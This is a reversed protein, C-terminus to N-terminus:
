VSGYRPGPRNLRGELFPIAFVPWAGALLPLLRYLLPTPVYRLGGWHAFGAAFWSEMWGLLILSTLGAAALFLPTNQKLKRKKASRVGITLALLFVIMVPDLPLLRLLMMASLGHKLIISGTLAMRVAWSNQVVFYFLFLTMWLARGSLSALVFGCGWFWLVMAGMSTAAYAVQQALSVGGPEYPVGYTVYTRIQRFLGSDIRHVSGSLYFGAVGAVGFLAVWPAWSSWQALHRRIVLGLINAAAVPASLQLEELDGCVCEREPPELLRSIAVVIRNM